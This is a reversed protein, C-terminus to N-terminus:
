ESKESLTISRLTCMVIHMGFIRSSHGRSYAGRKFQVGGMLCIPFYAGGRILAWWRFYAGLMEAKLFPPVKSIKDFLTESFYAKTKCSCSHQFIFKLLHLWFLVIQKFRILTIDSFSTRVLLSFSSPLFSISIMHDHLFKQRQGIVHFAHREFNM